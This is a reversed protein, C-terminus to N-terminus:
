AVSLQGSWILRRNCVTVAQNGGNSIGQSLQTLVILLRQPEDRTYGVRVDCSNGAVTTASVWDRALNLDFDDSLIGCYPSRRMM